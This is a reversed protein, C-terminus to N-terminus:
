IDFIGWVIMIDLQLMDMISLEGINSDHNCRDEVVLFVMDHDLHYGIALIKSLSIAIERTLFEGLVVDGDGLLM